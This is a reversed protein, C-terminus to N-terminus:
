LRRFGSRCTVDSRNYRTPFTLRKCRAKIRQRIGVYAGWTSETMLSSRYVYRFPESWGVPSDFPLRSPTWYGKAQSVFPRARANTRVSVIYLIRSRRDRPNGNPRSFTTTMM